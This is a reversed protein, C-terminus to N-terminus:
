KTSPAARRHSSLRDVGYLVFKGATKLGEVNSEEIAVIIDRVQEPKLSIAKIKYDRLKKLLLATWQDANLYKDPEEDKAKAKKVLDYASRLAEEYNSLKNEFFEGLYRLSYDDVFARAVDDFSKYKQPVPYKYNGNEDKESLKPNILTGNPLKANRYIKEYRENVFNLDSFSKKITEINKGLETILPAITGQVIDRKIPIQDNKGKTPIIKKNGESDIVLKRNKIEVDYTVRHKDILKMIDFALKKTLRNKRAEDKDRLIEKYQKYITQREDKPFNIATKVFLVKEALDMIEKENFKKEKLDKEIKDRLEIIKEADRRYLPELPYRTDSKKQEVTRDDEEAENISIDPLIDLIEEESLKDIIFSKYVEFETM